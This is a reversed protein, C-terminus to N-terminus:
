REFAFLLELILRKAALVAHFRRIISDLSSFFGQLVLLCAGFVLVPHAVQLYSERGTGEVLRVEAAERVLASVLIPNTSDLASFLPWYTTATGDRAIGAISILM